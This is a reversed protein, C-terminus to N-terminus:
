IPRLKKPISRINSHIFSLNTDSIGLDQCRKSFSKEYYYDCSNISNNHFEQYFNVDPDVDHLPSLEDDNIEFPVFIRDHHNANQASDSEWNESLIRLFEDDDCVQNFPFIDESCCTCLWDDRNGGIFERDDKNIYPICQYSYARLLGFM